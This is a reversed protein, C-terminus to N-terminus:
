PIAPCAGGGGSVRREIRAGSDCCVLREISASGNGGVIREGRECGRASQGIDGPDGREKGERLRGDGTGHDSDIGMEYTAEQRGPCEAEDTNTESM